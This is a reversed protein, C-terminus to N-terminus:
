YGGAGYLSPDTPTQGSPDWVYVWEGMQAWSYLWHADGVAMNICGHSQPYGMKSRWYAGHLARAGDFYMTYPVDELYYADSASDIAGRMPTTEHREFVQFVGPKTWMPELGSAIVTAFVLQRKEYVSLTQDFLNVEIWRDGTVGAPPTPNPLVRAIVRAPVWEDPGIMYWSEGSVTQEGFVRVVDYLNLWRGTYDPNASGPTRKTEIRAGDAFYSLVWGFPTTPTASFLLGHSKPLSGVRSLYNGTMFQGSAIEYIKKGGTETMSTYSVYITNGNLTQVAGKKNAKMADDLSGFIPAPLNRVEAYQVTTDDMGPNIPTYILPAVPLTIGKGALETLYASPGLPRCDGPDYTYIGPLCLPAAPAPSAQLTHAARAPALPAAAALALLLALRVPLSLRM